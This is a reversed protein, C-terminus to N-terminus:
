EINNVSWIRSSMTLQQNLDTAIKGTSILYWMMPMLAARDIPNQNLSFLLTKPDTEQLHKITTLLIKIQEKDKPVTQYPRLFKVNYLYPTRIEVETLIRFDWGKKKSYAIAARFKPKLNKWNKFLDKRYKVECLMPRNNSGLVTSDKYIVLLDPTYSHSKGDLGCYEIKVPQEEYSLVNPDFWMLELLDRELTSEYAKMETKDQSVILGTVSCSSKRIKRTPM